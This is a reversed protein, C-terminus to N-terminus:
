RDLFARKSLLAQNRNIEGGKWADFEKKTMKISALIRNQEVVVNELRAQAPRTPAGHDASFQAFGDSFTAAKQTLFAAGKDGKALLNLDIRIRSGFHTGVMLLDTDAMLTAMPSRPQM